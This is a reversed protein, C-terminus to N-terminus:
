CASLSASLCLSQSVRYPSKTVKLFAQEFLGRALYITTAANLIINGYAPFLFREEKHKQLMLTAVYLYMPTLRIALSMAPSTQGPTRDRLDGYRKPDYITSLYLMPLSSFALPFIINFNLLGNLVYYYWPETGYLEPGAGPTPFLNYRIINFPVVALKQYAASDVLIVPIQEFSLRHALVNM